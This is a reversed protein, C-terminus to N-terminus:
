IHLIPTWFHTLFPDMKPGLVSGMKSGLFSGKKVGKQGKKPTRSRDPGTRVPKPRDPGSCGMKSTRVTPHQGSALVPRVPGSRNPGTRFTVSHLLSRALKPWSQGAKALISGSHGLIAWFLGNQPGQVGPVGSRPDWARIVLTYPGQGMPGLVTCYQALGPGARYLGLGARYQVPGAWGHGPQAGVGDPDDM